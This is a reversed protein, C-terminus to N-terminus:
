LEVSHTTSETSQNMLSFNPSMTRDSQEGRPTSRTSRAGYSNSARNGRMTNTHNMQQIKQYKATPQVENYPLVLNHDQISFNIISSIDFNLEPLRVSMSDYTQAGPIINGQADRDQLGSIIIAEMVEPLNKEVILLSSVGELKFMADLLAIQQQTLFANYITGTPVIENESVFTQMEGERIFYRPTGQMYGVLTLLVNGKNQITIGPNNVSRTWIKFLGTFTKNDSLEICQQRYNTGLLGRNSELANKLQETTYNM